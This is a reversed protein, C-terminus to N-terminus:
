PLLQLGRAGANIAPEPPLAAEKIAREMERREAAAAAVAAQEAAATAAAAAAEAAAAVRAQAAAEEERIREETEISPLVEAELDTDVVSVAGEPHLEHVRLQYRTAARAGDNGDSDGGAEEVAGGQAQAQALGPPAAVEVWDGVSLASHSLLAAELAGRLADGEDVVALDRQFAAARPQLVVREGKPLRSYTVRLRGACADEGADPGWLCRVAKPPLAVFGEAASFELLGAHTSRGNPAELRFFM